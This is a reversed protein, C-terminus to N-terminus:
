KSACSCVISPWKGQKTVAIAAFWGFGSHCWNVKYKMWAFKLNIIKKEEIALHVSDLAERVMYGITMWNDDIQCKFAIARADFINTPEPFMNILVDVGAEIM